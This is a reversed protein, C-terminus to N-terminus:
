ANERKDQSIPSRDMSLGSLFDDSIFCAVGSIDRSLRRDDLASDNSAGHSGIWASCNSSRIWEFEMNRASEDIIVSHRWSNRISVHSVNAWAQTAWNIATLEDVAFVNEIEKTFPRSGQAGHFECRADFEKVLHDTQLRRVHAKFCAIVGADM